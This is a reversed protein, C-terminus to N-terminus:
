RCFVMCGLIPPGDGAVFTSDLREFRPFMHTRMKSMGDRSIRHHMELFSDLYGIFSCRGQQLTFDHGVLDCFHFNSYFLSHGFGAARGAASLESALFSHKDEGLKVIKSNALHYISDRCRSVREADAACLTAEPPWLPSLVIDLVMAMMLNGERCPEQITLTGGSRLVRAADKLFARWDGVHHLASAIVIADFSEAPLLSLEEGALTAFRVNECSHTATSLKARILELFRPSTDTILLSAQPASLILGLSCTGGGAGIELVRNIAGSTHFKLLQWAGRGWRLLDERLAGGIDQDYAEEGGPFQQPASIFYIGHREQFQSLDFSENCYM